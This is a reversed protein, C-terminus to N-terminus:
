VVKQWGKLTQPTHFLRMKTMGSTSLKQGKKALLWLNDIKNALPKDVQHSLQWKIARLSVAKSVILKEAQNIEVRIYLLKEGKRSLPPKIQKLHFCFESIQSRRKQYLHKTNYLKGM